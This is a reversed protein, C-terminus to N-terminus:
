SVPSLALVLQYLYHPVLYTSILNAKQYPKLALRKVRQLTACLDQRLSKIDVGAWPSIRVGLYKLATDADAYPISEGSELALCPDAIYWSDRTTAIRFTACKAASIKMGLGSLYTEAVSLLNRAQPMTRATLIVDDAFALVSVTHENIINYGAQGELAVLMPEMVMNFILPSLPDGQKVGRQIKIAVEEEGNKVVTQVDDYSDVVLRVVLEPLGKKRLAEGIIEHPVTDFAKSVDLQVAVMGETQKSHRLLESFIHVNNFCGAETTFGKQRPNMKVCRRIRQDVIGWYLRALISSITIPRYNTVNTHDLGDKPLLTTRNRRWATPQYGRVLIVNFWLRLIEKAAMRSFDKKVLGDPGAAVNLKTRALRKDIKSVIIPMMVM